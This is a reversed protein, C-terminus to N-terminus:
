RITVSLMYPLALEDATTREVEIRYDGDVPARGTSIFAGTATSPLLAGTAANVVRVTAEGRGRELRVDLLHGKPVFLVYADRTGAALWGAFQTPKPGARLGIRRPARPNTAAAEPSAAVAEAPPVVIAVIKLQGEVAQITLVSNGIMFGPHTEVAALMGRGVAAHVEPTFIDEYRELLAAPTSFPVRVGGISVTVPYRVSAAVATRDGARLARNLEELFPQLQSQAYTTTVLLLCVGFVRPMSHNRSAIEAAFTRHHRASRQVGVM